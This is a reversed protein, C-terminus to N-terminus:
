TTQSNLELSEVDLTEVLSLPMKQNSILHVYKANLYSAYEPQDQIYISYFALALQKMYIQAIKQDPGLVWAPLSIGATSEDLTSFHTGETLLVLYKEPTTLWTFPIIQETLAPTVFDSSGSIIKLPIDIQALSKQGFVSSTLPDIAIASKIREDKLNFDRDEDPLQVALCQILFSLNWKDIQDCNEELTSWNLPAGALALTTYAGLSQGVMGVNDTDIQQNGYDEALKDLLFQIDLPRDILEEPPIVNDLDLNNLWSKIQGANSGPHEPVAVAFGHSALHEALYAFTTLDGGLGHSIVILPLPQETKTEPLYLDSAFTRDRSSDNMTLSQKHYRYDGPLLLDSNKVTPALTIKDREQQAVQQIAATAQDSRQIFQSLNQFFKFGRRFSTPIVESVSELIKEERDSDLFQAIEGPALDANTTLETKFQQLQEPTSFYTHSKLVEELKDTTADTELSDVAGSFELAEYNLVLDEAVLAKKAGGSWMAVGFSVQLAGVALYTWLGKINLM